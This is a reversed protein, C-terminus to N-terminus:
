EIYLFANSAFVMQCFDTWVSQEANTKGAYLTSQEQLFEEASAREGSHPPRGCALEFILTIRGAQNPGAEATVRRAFARSRTRVFDSNLLALSQLPVTSGTRQVCNPNMKASDFLDLMTVPTTRRQQLYLSRRKAGPEKENVVQEGEETQARPIFPGGMQLDLEGGAFLMADRIAEAELRRLPYRWLLQDEPNLLFAEERLSSAQRYTSSNVILRHLAKVNWRGRVFERALWDLLEPHTPKAGTVGFNDATTVLGFGFHRQWMRNVMLRATMPNDPSTLWRALAARRGSTKGPAPQYSSAGAALIAPVDPEVERGPQTYNGRTLLHHAPPKGSPETLATIQPLPAIQNEKEKRILEQLAKYGSALEPFRTLLAEDEIQVLTSHKELLQNMPGTREKEKAALATRLATRDSELLTQLREERALNRFPKTLGDFSEQYAQLERDHKEIQQRKRERDARRGVTLARDNPKLWREPDYAPRLIAQLQYYEVQTIPEFKHNHCKACQVTLGLFVSGILQVNGEIVSYRDVQLELANGDSEGTGDPANRLFHTAILPEVKEPTIDGEPEYGAWEDGAIQERIFQDFPKDDNFSRIVYDRYKWALPRDSDANFYGNSDAYGAVDLWHRGWREGYHPSALFREVLKEYAKPDSDAVFEAIEEPTPPLGILDFKLRRILTTRDAEASPLLKTQELKALIFFDIPSRIWSKQAVAPLDTLRPPTFAWHSPANTPPRPNPAGLDAAGFASQAALWLGATLLIEQRVRHLLKKARLLM